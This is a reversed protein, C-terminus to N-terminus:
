LPKYTIHLYTSIWPKWTGPRRYDGFVAAILHLCYIVCSAVGFRRPRVESPTDDHPHLFQPLDWDFCETVPFISVLPGRVCSLITLTQALARCVSLINPCRLDQVSGIRPCIFFSIQRFVDFPFIYAYISSCCLFPIKCFYTTFTHLANVHRWILDLLTHQPCSM